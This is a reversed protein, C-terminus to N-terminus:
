AIREMFEDPTLLTVGGNVNPVLWLDVDRESDFLLRHGCGHGTEERREVESWLRAITPATPDDFEDNDGYREQVKASVRDFDRGFAPRVDDELIPVAAPIGDDFLRYTSPM